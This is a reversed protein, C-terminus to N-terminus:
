SSLEPSLADDRGLLAVVFPDVDQPWQSYQMFNYVYAGKIQM